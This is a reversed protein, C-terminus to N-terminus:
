QTPQYGYVKKMMESYENGSQNKYIYFPPLITLWTGSNKVAEILVMKAEEGQRSHVFQMKKPELRSQKMVTILEALRFPHYILYFKGTNKLLYSAVSIIDKLTVTIEHRAEARGTEMSLLGTRMKRFPPNSVVFDFANPPLVQRLEKIDRNLVQVRHNLKNLMVNENACRALSDQIEVAIINVERLRKALLISIVGSGTGLEVGKTLRKATIFHELLLADVSFRYGEKPQLLAVDRISDCTVYESM